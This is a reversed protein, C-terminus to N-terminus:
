IISLSLYFIKQYDDGFKYHLHLIGLGSYSEELHNDRNDVNLGCSFCMDYFREEHYVINLESFNVWILCDVFLFLIHASLPISLFM